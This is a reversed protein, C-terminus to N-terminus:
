PMIRAFGLCHVVISTNKHHAMNRANRKIKFRSIATYQQQQQQQQLACRTSRKFFTRHCCLSNGSDTASAHLGCSNSTPHICAGKDTKDTSSARIEDSKSTHEQRNKDTSSAKIKDSKFIHEQRNKDTSSAKTEDSKVIHEQFPPTVCTSKRFAALHTNENHQQRFCGFSSGMAGPGHTDLLMTDARIAFPPKICLKRLRQQECGM